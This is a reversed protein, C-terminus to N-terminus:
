GDPVFIHLRDLSSLMWRKVNTNDLHDVGFQEGLAPDLGSRLLPWSRPSHVPPPEPGAPLCQRASGVAIVGHPTEVRMSFVVRRYVLGDRWLVEALTRGLNAVSDARRLSLGPRSGLVTTFM